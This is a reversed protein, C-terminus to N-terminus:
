AVDLTLQGEGLPEWIQGKYQESDATGQTFHVPGKEGLRARNGNGWRSKFFSYVTIRKNEFKPKTKM